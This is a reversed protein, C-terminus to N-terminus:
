PHLAPAAAHAAGAPATDLSAVLRGLFGDLAKDDPIWRVVAVLDNDWDVYVINMGNGVFCVSTAPAHPWPRRGTNLYWNAFGYDPNAPGPTRALAIWEPSVLPRDRWRGNRLFLTGFRALDWANIFIGGGFHGGGSVSQMRRGDITVFSNRYGEWHWTASAGIPDMIEDRLVEPLPRRWVDLALLALLNVRVDNYKFFTGPAHMARHEQEARTRGVPRDAWDPVGWLTGSWDSTQRLLNDWTIPANHPGDLLAPDDAYRRAPDDLRAIRGRQWAIGVLTTLFTKTVSFTMDVRDPDGWTAVVYGHRLVVGTM